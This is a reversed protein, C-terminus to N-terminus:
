KIALMILLVSIVAFIALGVIMLHAHLRDNPYHSFDTTMVGAPQM